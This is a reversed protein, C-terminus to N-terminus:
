LRLNIKHPVLLNCTFNIDVLLIGVGQCVGIASYLNCLRKDSGKYSEIFASETARVNDVVQPFSSMTALLHELALLLPLALGEIFVYVRDHESLYLM